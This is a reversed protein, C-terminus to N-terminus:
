SFFSSCTLVMSCGFSWPFYQLEKTVMSFSSCLFRWPVIPAGFAISDCLSDSYDGTDIDFNAILACSLKM